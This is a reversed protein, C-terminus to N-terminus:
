SGSPSHEFNNRKKKKKMETTLSCKYLLKSFKILKVQLRAELGSTKKQM